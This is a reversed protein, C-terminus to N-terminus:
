DLVIKRAQGSISLKKWSSILNFNKFNINLHHASFSTYVFGNKRQNRVVQKHSM